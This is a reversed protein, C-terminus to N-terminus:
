GLARAIRQANTRMMQEYTAGDSGKAGLSEVFLTVVKVGHGEAALADALRRPSSTDAFIAPVGNREIEKALADLDAASPAALTNLSPVVAGLVRFGYREAFYGLADHNTVLVRRSAPIVSLTRALEADLARLSAVYASARSRFAATDLEPVSDALRGALAEVAVAMRSPDAFVHPDTAPPGKGGEPAVTRLRPALRAVEITTVGDHRAAAIADALGSEFGLGNVVLVHASRMDAAQRASAAFEHPDANPPMVTEVSALPGVLEHVVDGLINSTVVIEPGGASSSGACAAAGAALAGVMAVGFIRILVTRM